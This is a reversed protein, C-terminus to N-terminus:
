LPIHIPSSIGFWTYSGGVSLSEKLLWLRGELSLILEPQRPPDIEGPIIHFHLLKLVLAVKRESM